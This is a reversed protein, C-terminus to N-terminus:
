RWEYRGGRVKGGSRSGGRIIDGAGAQGTGLPGPDVAGPRTARDRGLTACRPNAREALFRSLVALARRDVEADGVLVRGGEVRQAAAQRGRLAGIAALGVARELADQQIAQQGLGDGLVPV